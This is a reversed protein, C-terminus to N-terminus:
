LSLSIGAAKASAAERTYGAVSMLANAPKRKNPQNLSMGQKRLCKSFHNAIAHSKTSVAFLGSASGGARGLNLSKVDKLSEAGFGFFWVGELTPIAKLPRFSSKTKEM